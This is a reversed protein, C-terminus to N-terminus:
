DREMGQKWVFYEPNEKKFQEVFSNIDDLNEHIVMAIAEDVGFESVINDWARIVFDNCLYDANGLSTDKDALNTIVYWYKKDDISFSNIEPKM